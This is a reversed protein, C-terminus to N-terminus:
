ATVRRRGPAATCAENIRKKPNYFALRRLRLVGINESIGLRYTQDLKHPQPPPYQNRFPVTTSQEIPVSPLAYALEKSKEGNKGSLPIQYAAYAKRHSIACM